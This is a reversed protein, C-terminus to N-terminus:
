LAKASGGAKAAAIPLNEFSGPAPGAAKMAKSMFPQFDGVEAEGMATRLASYAQAAAGVNDLAGSARLRAAFERDNKDLGAGALDFLLAGGENEDAVAGLGQYSRAESVLSEFSAQRQAQTDGEAIGALSGLGRISKTAADAAKQREANFQAFGQTAFALVSTIGAIELAMKGVSQLAQPGFADDGKKGAKELAAGYEVAKLKAHEMNLGGHKVVEALKAMKHNYKEQPDVQAAMAKAAAEFNKTAKAGKMATPELKELATNLNAVSQIASAASGKIDFSLGM